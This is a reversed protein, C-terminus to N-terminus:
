HHRRRQIQRWPEDFHYKSLSKRSGDNHYGGRAPGDPGSPICSTTGTLIFVMAAGMMLLKLYRKM